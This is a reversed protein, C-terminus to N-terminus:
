EDSGNGDVPVTEPKIAEGLVEVAKQIHVHDARSASVNAAVNNLVNLAEQPTMPKNDPM